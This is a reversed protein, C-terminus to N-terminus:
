WGQQPPPGYPGPQQEGGPWPGTGGPYQPGGHHPEGYPPQAHPPHAHPPQISPPQTNSPRGYLPQAYPTEGYPPEGYPQPPPYQPGNPDYPGYPGYPSYPGYPHGAPVGRFFRGSRPLSLLVVNTIGVLLFLLGAPNTNGIASLGAFITLSGIIIAYSRISTGGRGLLLAAILPFVAFFSRASARGVLEFDDLAVGVFIDVASRAFVLGCVIFFLVQVATVTGPKPMPPLPPQM